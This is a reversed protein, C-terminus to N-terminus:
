LRVNTAILNQREDIQSLADSYGGYEDIEPTDVADEDEVIGNDLAAKVISFSGEESLLCSVELFDAIEAQTAKPSPLNGIKYSM